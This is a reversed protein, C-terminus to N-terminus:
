EETIDWAHSIAVCGKLTQAVPCGREFVALAREADERKGRPVKLHYRVDIRTVRMVRDPAEIM